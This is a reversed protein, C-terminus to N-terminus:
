DSIISFQLWCQSYTCVENSYISNCTSTQWLRALWFVAVLIWTTFVIIVIQVCETLNANNRILKLTVKHIITEMGQLENCYYDYIVMWLTDCVFLNTTNIIWWDLNLHHLSIHKKHRNLTKVFLLRISFNHKTRTSNQKWIYLQNNHSGHSWYSSNLPVKLGCDSWWFRSYLMQINKRLVHEM